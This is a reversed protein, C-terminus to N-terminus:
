ILFHNPKNEYNFENSRQELNAMLRKIENIIDSQHEMKEEVSDYDHRDKRSEANDNQYEINADHDHALEELKNLLGFIIEGTLGLDQMETISM